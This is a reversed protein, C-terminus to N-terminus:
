IEILLNHPFLLCVVSVLEAQTTIWDFLLNLKPIKNSMGFLHLSLGEFLNGMKYHVFRREM